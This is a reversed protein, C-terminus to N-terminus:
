DNPYDDYFDDGWDDGSYSEPQSICLPNSSQLQLIYRVQPQSYYNKVTM